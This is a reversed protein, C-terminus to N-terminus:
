GGQPTVSYRHSGNLQLDRYRKYRSTCAHGCLDLWGNERNKNGLTPPFSKPTPAWALRPLPQQAATPKATGQTACVANKIQKATSTLEAM